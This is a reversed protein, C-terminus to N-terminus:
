ESNQEAIYYAIWEVAIFEAGPLSNIRLAV